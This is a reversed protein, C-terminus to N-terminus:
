IRCLFVKFWYLCLLGEEGSVHEYLYVMWRKSSGTRIIEQCNSKCMSGSGHWLASGSLALGVTAYFTTWSPSSLGGRFPCIIFCTLAICAAVILPIRYFARKMLYEESRMNLRWSCVTVTNPQPRYFSIALDLIPMTDIIHKRTAALKWVIKQALRIREVYYVKHVVNSPLQDHDPIGFLPRM